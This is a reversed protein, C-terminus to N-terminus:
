RTRRKLIFKDSSKKKKRTKYGKCPQGWPTVAQKYGKVRGEGGGHPHDHPNMAMGRVKPRKGIWRRAGAKGFVTNSHDLNGVQGLTAYCDRRFTRIEGSPLRIIVHDKERGVIQAVAGASRVVQGGKGPKFEINHIRSGVPMSGLPLSNGPKIEAEPGSMLTDGEKVGIPALIYRKEGDAYSLLAIFASRNPDYEIQAVKAPIGYKNRKFDVVRIRKKNGGGLHRMTIRGNNNRGGSRHSKVILNKEPKAGPTLESYTLTRRTRLSPTTPNYHKIGM